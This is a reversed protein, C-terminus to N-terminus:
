YADDHARAGSLRGADDIMKTDGAVQCIFQREARAIDDATATFAKILPLLCRRIATVDIDCRCRMM